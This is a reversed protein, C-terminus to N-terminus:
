INVVVAPWPQAIVDNDNDIPISEGSELLDEVYIEVAEQINALAERYALGIRPTATSV